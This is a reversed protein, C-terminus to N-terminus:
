NISLIYEFKNLADRFVPHAEEYYQKKERMLQRYKPTYVHEDQMLSNLIELDKNSYTSLKAELSQLFALAEDEDRIEQNFFKIIAVNRLLGDIDLVNYLIKDVINISEYGDSM